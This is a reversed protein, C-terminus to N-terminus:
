YRGDINTSVYRGTLGIGGAMRGRFTAAAAFRGDVAIRAGPILVLEAGVKAWYRAAFFRPAFYRGAFM